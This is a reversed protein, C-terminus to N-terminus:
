SVRLKQLLFFCLSDNFIIYNKQVWLEVPLYNVSSGSCIMIQIVKRYGCMLFLPMKLLLIGSFILITASEGVKESRPRIQIVVFTIQWNKAIRVSEDFHQCTVVFADVGGRFSRFHCKSKKEGFNKLAPQLIM